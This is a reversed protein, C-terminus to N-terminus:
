TISDFSDFSFPKLSLPLLLSLSLSRGLANTDLLSDTSSLARRVSEVCGRRVYGRLVVMVVYCGKGHWVHCMEEGEGLDAHMIRILFFAFARYDLHDIHSRVGDFTGLDLCFLCCRRSSGSGISDRFDTTAARATARTTARATGTTTATRGVTVFIVFLFLFFLHHLYPSFDGNVTGPIQIRQLRHEQVFFTSKKTNRTREM